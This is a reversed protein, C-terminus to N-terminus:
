DLCCTTEIVSSLSAFNSVLLADEMNMEPDVWRGGM